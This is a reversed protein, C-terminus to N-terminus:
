TSSKKVEIRFCQISKKLGRIKRSSQETELVQKVRIDILCLIISIVSFHKGIRRNLFRVFSWHYLLWKINNLHFIIINCEIKCVYVCARILFIFRYIIAYRPYRHTALRVRVSNCSNVNWILYEPHSHLPISRFLTRYIKTRYSSSFFSFRFYFSACSKNVNALMGCISLGSISEIVVSFFLICALTLM